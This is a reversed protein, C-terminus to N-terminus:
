KSERHFMLEGNESVMDMERFAMPIAGAAGPSRITVDGDDDDSTYEDSSLWELGTFASIRGMPVTNKLTKVKEGQEGVTDRRGYECPTTQQGGGSGERSDREDRRGGATQAADMESPLSSFRRLLRCSCYAREDESRSGSTIQIKTM